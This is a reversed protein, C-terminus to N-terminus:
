MCPYNAQEKGAVRFLCDAPGEYPIGDCHQLVAQWFFFLQRRVADQPTIDQSRQVEFFDLQLFAPKM